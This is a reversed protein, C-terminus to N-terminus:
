LPLLRLRSGTGCGRVPICQLDHLNVDLLLQGGGTPYPAPDPHLPGCEADQVQLLVIDGPSPSAWPGQHIPWTLNVADFILTTNSAQSIKLYWYLGLNSLVPLHWPDKSTLTLILLYFGNILCPRSTLKPMWTLFFWPWAVCFKLTSTM